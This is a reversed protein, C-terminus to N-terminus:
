KKSYLGPHNHHDPGNKKVVFAIQPQQQQQQQQQQDRQNGAAKIPLTIQVIEMEELNLNHIHRENSVKALTRMEDAEGATVAESAAKKLLRKM